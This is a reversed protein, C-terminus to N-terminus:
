DPKPGKYAYWVILLGLFLGTLENIVWAPYLSGPVLGLVPLILAALKYLSSLTGLVMSPWRVLRAPFAAYAWTMLCCISVGLALAVSANDGNFAKLEADGIQSIMAIGIPNIAQVLWLVSLKANWSMGSM